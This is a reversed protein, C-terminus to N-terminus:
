LERDPLRILLMEDEGYVDKRFHVAGDDGVWATLYLLYVPVSPSVPVRRTAGTAVVSRIKEETWHLLPKNALIYAALRSPEEVRICGHSLARETRNFLQRGPTDHLYIDFENTFIFKTKGLPNKPGPDQRLMYPFHNENLRSWNISRPALEKGDDWHSFVRIGRSAFYGPHRRQRPILEDLAISLPITWYPNFVVTHIKGAILPTPRQLTGIITNMTFQREGHNYASLHYAAVNVIIHRHGLQNPLWRWREMNLRIQTIRQSLPVNLEALTLPGVVGDVRLGHRLQFREIAYRLAQDFLMEDEVPAFQLEGELHLRQRLLPTRPDQVGARLTRGAPITPWGNNAAEIKRYRALADRLRRYAPHTPPLSKLAIKFDDSTLLAQLLSVSDTEAVEIHWLQESWMPDIQGSQLKRSYDFFANTLLLELTILEHISESPWLQVLLPLPYAAPELGENGAQHLTRLLIEADTNTGSTDVWVPLYDRTTYFTALQTWHLQSSYSGSRQGLQSRLEAAFAGAEQPAMSETQAMEAHLAASWLLGILATFILRLTLPSHRPQM